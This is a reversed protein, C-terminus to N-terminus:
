AARGLRAPILEACRHGSFAASELTGPLGTATWDGALLLNPIPTEHPPRLLETSALPSFTALREKIVLSHLLVARHAAPLYRRVESDALRVLEESPRDVLGRASSSVLALRSRAKGKKEIKSERCADFIWHIASDLLGLFPEEFVPRDYWLHISLIPSSEIRKIPGFFSDEAPVEEPLIRHLANQPVTCVVASGRLHSGDRLRVGVVRGDELILSSVGKQCYIRGGRRSLYEQVSPDVLRSLPVGPIGLRSGAGGGLFGLKLVSAFLRGSARRPDENLAAVALPRWLGRRSGPTQSFTDLWEEVTAEPPPIGKGRADIEGMLSRRISGWGRIIGLKDGGNLAGHRLIGSLFHLPSPLSGCRFVTRRGTPEALPVELNEQFSIGDATGVRKLFRMSEEYCAMLLHQGNDVEDGTTSDIFSYARGGLHNKEELLTVRIGAEALASACALGSWGGGIVIVGESKSM